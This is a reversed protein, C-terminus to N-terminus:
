FIVLGASRSCAALPPPRAHCTVIRRPFWCIEAINLPQAREGSAIAQALAACRGNKGWHGFSTSLCSQEGGRAEIAVRRPREGVLQPRLLEGLDDALVM